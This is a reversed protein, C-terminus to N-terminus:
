DGQPQNFDARWKKLKSKQEATIKPRTSNLAPPYHGKQFGIILFAAEDGVTSGGFEIYSSISRAVAACPETSDLLKILQTIDSDKIWNKHLGQVTYYEEPGISQLMDLFDAPTKEQWNFTDGYEAASNGSPLSYIVQHYRLEATLPTCAATFCVIMLPVFIIKM